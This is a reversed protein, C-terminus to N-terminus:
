PCLTTMERLDVWGEGVSFTVLGYHGFKKTDSLHVVESLPPMALIFDSAYPSNLVKVAHPSFRPVWYMVISDEQYPPRFIRNIPNNFWNSLSREVQTGRHDMFIATYGTKVWRRFIFVEASDDYVGVNKSSFAIDGETMSLIDPQFWNLCQFHDHLAQPKSIPSPVQRKYGLRNLATSVFCASRVSRGWDYPCSQQADTVLLKHINNTRLAFEYEDVAFVSVFLLSIIFFSFM